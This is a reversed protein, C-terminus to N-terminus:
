TLHHIQRSGHGWNPADDDDQWPHKNQEGRLFDISLNVLIRWDSRPIIVRWPRPIFKWFNRDSVCKPSGYSKMWWCIEDKIVGIRSLYLVWIEREAENIDIWYILVSDVNKPYWFKGKLQSQTLELYSSTKNSTPNGEIDSWAPAWNWNRHNGNRDFPILVCWNSVEM